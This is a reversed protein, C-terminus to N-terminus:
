RVESITIGHIAKMLKAKIRYAPTKFGKVDEVVGTGREADYYVFDAVYKCIVVGGVALTYPVQCRLDAIVGAAALTKLQCYRAYERKSAFRRGDATVAKAGYKNRRAPLKM